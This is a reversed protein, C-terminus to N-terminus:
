KTLKTLNMSTFFEEGMEFMKLPTYGQRVMEDTVDLLPTDPFPAVIDGINTWQQAWMNGLLHMPIPGTESVVEKGYKQVLRHRVYAHIEEYLPRIEEFIDDM